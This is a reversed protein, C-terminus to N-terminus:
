TSLSQSVKFINPHFWFYKVALPVVLHCFLISSFLIFILMLALVPFTATTLCLAIKEQLSHNHKYCFISLSKIEKRILYCLIVETHEIYKFHRLCNVTRKLLILSYNATFLILKQENLNTQIILRGGQETNWCVPWQTQCTNSGFSIQKLEYLMRLNATPVKTHLPACTTGASKWTSDNWLEATNHTDTARLTVSCTWPQRDQQNLLEGTSPAASRARQDATHM